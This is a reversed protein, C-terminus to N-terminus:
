RHLSVLLTVVTRKDSAVNSNLGLWGGALPQPTVTAWPQGWRHTICLYLTGLQGWFAGTRAIKGATGRVAKSAEGSWTTTSTQMM